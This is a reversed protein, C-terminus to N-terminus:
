IPLGLKRAIAKCDWCPEFAIEKGTLLEQLRKAKRYDAQCEATRKFQELTTCGAMKLHEKEEKTLNTFNM